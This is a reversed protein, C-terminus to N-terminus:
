QKPRSKFYTKYLEHAIPVASVAGFGGNEVVVAVAIRPKSTPGFGVYLAHDPQGLVESTGTKGGTPPISGNNLQSATGKRVVDILGAKIIAITGPDLGTAEPQLQPDATQAKLLHPKVRKGDNVIAATMVAMELPTVQVLGQGISMSVTDGGYWPEKYLTEKEAPTPVLGQSGGDLGMTDTTGIGLRKAWKSIQEPGAALGVQYFFTNSSYAIADRFGIVGYGAGHEHFLHGGLNLAAFTALTSDPSFKGSQIGAAATVV